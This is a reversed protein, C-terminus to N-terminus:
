KENWTEIIRKYALASPRVKREMTAYDVEVLGFCPWFGKDWEFNDLLSWHFYGRVDAGEKIAQKVWSLHERLFFERHADRADAIGNETVYIPLRYRELYKIVHYIGQPYVEWGLDSVQKNENKNLGWDIRNRFYYNFGIFDLSARIRNLFYSNWLREALFKFFHNAIGGASDFYTLNVAVGVQAAPAAARLARTAARHARISQVLSRYLLFVNKKQPPWQGLLYAHGAHVEPENVTIWFKVDNKFVEAMKGAFRAFHRPFDKALTGGKKALRM